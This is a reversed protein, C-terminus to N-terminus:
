RLEILFSNCTYPLYFYHIIFFFIYQIQNTDLNMLKKANMQLIM